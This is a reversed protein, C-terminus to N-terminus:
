AGSMTKMVRQKLAVMAEVQSEDTAVILKGCRDHAIGREECYAYMMAAGRVM